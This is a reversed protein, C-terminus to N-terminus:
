KKRNTTKNVEPAAKEPEGDDWKIKFRQKKQEPEANVTTDKKYLGYEQKLITKISQKEKKFNNKVTTGAAKMDYGVKSNDGNGVIKLLLSTRGLGDDEVVGFETISKDKPRKKSLIRSLLIKIHYEYENDFSHKGNVTLDAASSKVDMQPIYLLNNRISFNNDLQEFTINELESLEIFSSLQKVPDFNILAGNVLHYNGEATLTKIHFNLLSDVPFLVSLTGSLKGKINEAKLFSQGFNHFTTFARNVDVEKVIFNGKTMFSHDKNQSIFGNGSITGKLSKMNLNKFTLTNTLYNLNGELDSAAFTRYTLSDIRFNIKFKINGPLKFAKDSSANKDSPDTFYAEAKIKDFGVDATANMIVKRGALWEPLNDFEGTVKINQEKYNFKLHDAKISGHMFLSGTLDAVLLDKLGLTFSNFTIDAEPKLDIFGDSTFIKESFPKDTVKLVIEASGEAKSWSQIKFLNKIEAPIVKGKVNLDFCPNNFNRLNFSGSYDASAVSLRCDNVTIVSTEFNNKKGNSFHSSFSLDKITVYPMKYALAGNKIEMKLDIHPNSTQSLKGTIRCAASAIGTIEHLDISNLYGAPIYPKIKGLDLNKSSVNLDLINKDQIYGDMAIADKDIHLIGKRFTFGSQSSQLILDIKAPISRAIKFNDLDFRTFLMDTAATFDINSGSIKTKLKGSRIMSTIVLNVERNDYYAKIDNLNIRKLDIITEEGSTSSGKVSIDYNDGGSMDTYFNVSGDKAGISEINYVGRIIDTIRFELSVTRAFLLTDTNMGGFEAHKFGPSSHALVNKLELSAKPFKRIFSLKFSGIELKTSLNKNISRLIISGVKDKLIYSASFLVIAIALVLIAFLKGIKLFLKM